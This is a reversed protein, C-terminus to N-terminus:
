SGVRVEIGKRCRQELADLEAPSPADIVFMVARDGSERIESLATGSPKLALVCRLTAPDQPAGCADIQAHVRAPSFWHPATGLEDAVTVDELVGAPHDLYVQRAVRTPERLGIPEGLAVRVYAEELSVGTSLWHLAMISDGPPRAAIEILVPDGGDPLRYEGHAMGTGFALRDLVALHTDILAARQGDTLGVAPTTHGLEVFYESSAETTRKQTIEVYSPSGDVSMSEVSYEPGSARSEFLLTEAPPYDGAIGALEDADAALQVGSSAFRGTPKVVVPFSTWNAIAAARERPGVRHWSPSWRDLYRRQLHKDRCVTAARLGPSRLGLLDAAFAAPLVYPESLSVVGRVDFRNAWAAVADVIGTHEEPAIIAVEGVAALPHELNDPGHGRLLDRAHEGDRDIVLATLGCRRVAELYRQNWAVALGGLMVVAPKRETM